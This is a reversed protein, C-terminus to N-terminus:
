QVVEYDFLTETRRAVPIRILWRNLATLTAEREVAPVLEGEISEELNFPVRDLTAVVLIHERDSERDDRLRARVEFGQTAGPVRLPKGALVRTEATWRNPFILGISGDSGINLINLYCDRSATIELVLAEGDRFTHSEPATKLEVAFGPDREGQELVVEARLTVRYVPIEDRLTTTYAAEEDVIRGHTSTHILYSFTDRMEGPAETKLRLQQAAIRIGTVEAVAKDRARQLAEQRAEEPTRGLGYVEATVEVTRTETAHAPAAAVVMAAAALALAAVRPIV